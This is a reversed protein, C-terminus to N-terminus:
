PTLLSRNIGSFVNGIMPAMLMLGGFVVCACFIFVVCGPIFVSGAAPGWGFQNVGKVAMIQLVLIYLGALGLIIRFCLGVFPIASLLIFVSSILSYPVGIAAFVYALQDNNGRGGFMKAIWQIIAVVLAFFATGIAAAIPTGCILVLAVAGIGNGLRGNGLDAFRGGMLSGRMLLSFFSVVVSSMFVWLYATTAKAKPSNGIEAYTSESPKTLAKIWTQYFPETSSSQMIPVNPDIQNSM